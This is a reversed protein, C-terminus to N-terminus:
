EHETSDHAEGKREVFRFLVNLLEQRGTGKEASFPIVKVDEGLAAFDAALISPSLKIM